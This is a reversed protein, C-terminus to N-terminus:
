PCTVTLNFDSFAATGAPIFTSVIVSDGAITKTASAVTIEGGIAGVISAVASCTAVGTPFTVECVGNSLFTATVGTTPKSGALTCTTATEDVLAFNNQGELAAVETTLTSVESMLTSVQGQLTTVESMLTNVQTQLMAVVGELTEVRDELAPLGGAQSEPEDPGTAGTPGSPGGKGHGHGAWAPSSLAGALLVCSIIRISRRM